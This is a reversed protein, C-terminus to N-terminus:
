RAGLLELAKRASCWASRARESIAGRCWGISVVGLRIESFLGASYCIGRLGISFRIIV